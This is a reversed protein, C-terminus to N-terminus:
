RRRFLIDPDYDVYRCERGQPLQVRPGYVSGGYGFLSEATLYVWGFLGALYAGLVAVVLAAGFQAFSANEAGVVLMAVGYLALLVLGGWAFRLSYKRAIARVLWFSNLKRLANVAPRYDPDAQLIRQWLERAEAFRGVRVYLRALLDASLVTLDGCDMRELALMAGETDGSLAQRWLEHAVTTLDMARRSM